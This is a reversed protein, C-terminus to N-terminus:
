LKSLETPLNLGVVLIPVMRVKRVHEIVDNVKNTAWLRTKVFFLSQFLLYM